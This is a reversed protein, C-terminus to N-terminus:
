KENEHSDHITGCIVTNPIIGEEVRSTFIKYTKNGVGDRRQQMEYQYGNCFIKIKINNMFLEVYSVTNPIYGEEVRSTFNKYANGGGRDQSNQIKYQSEKKIKMTTM